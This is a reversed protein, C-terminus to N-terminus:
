HYYSLISMIWNRYTPHSLNVYVDPNNAGGQGGSFIFVGALKKNFVLPAGSDGKGCYKKVDLTCIYIDTIETQYEYAFRCRELTITAVRISRLENPLRM